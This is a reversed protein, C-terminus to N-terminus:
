YAQHIRTVVDLATGELYMEIRGWIRECATAYHNPNSVLHPSKKWKGLGEPLV